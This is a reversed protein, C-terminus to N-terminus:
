LGRKGLLFISIMAIYENDRIFGTQLLTAGAIAGSVVYLTKLLDQKGQGKVELALINAREKSQLEVERFTQGFLTASELTETERQLSRIIQTMSVVGLPKNNKDIVPLHRIKNLLMMDRCKKITEGTNVTIINDTTTMVEEIKTEAPILNRELVRNIFDRETFIGKINNEDDVILISSRRSETMKILAYSVTDNPKVKDFVANELLKEISDTPRLDQVTAIMSYSYENSQATNLKTSTSISTTATTKVNRLPASFKIFGTVSYLGVIVISYFLM